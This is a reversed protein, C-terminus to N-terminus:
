MAKYSNWEPPQIWASPSSLAQVDRVTVVEIIDPIRMEIVTPHLATIVAVFYMGRCDNGGGFGEM